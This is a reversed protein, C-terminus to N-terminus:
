LRPALQVKIWDSSAILCCAQMRLQIDKNVYVNKRVGPDSFHKPDIGQGPNQKKLFHPFPQVGQLFHFSQRGCASKYIM